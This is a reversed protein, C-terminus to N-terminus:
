KKGKSGGGPASGAGEPPLEPWLPLPKGDPGIYGAERLYYDSFFAAAAHGGDALAQAAAHAAPGGWCVDDCSGAPPGSGDAGGGRAAAGSVPGTHSVPPGGEAGVVGGGTALCHACAPLAWGASAHVAAATVTQTVTHTLARAFSTTLVMDLATAVRQPLTRQLSEILTRALATRLPPVLATALDRPLEASLYDIGLPVLRERLAAALAASLKASVGTALPTTMSHSLKDFLKKSAAGLKAYRKTSEVYQKRRPHAGKKGKARKRRALEAAAVGHGAAAAEADAEADSTFRAFSSGRAAASAGSNERDRGVSSADARRHVHAGVATEAFATESAAPTGDVLSDATGAAGHQLSPPLLGHGGVSGDIVIAANSWHAVRQQGLPALMAALAAEARAADVEGLSSTAAADAAAATSMVTAAAAQVELLALPVADGAARSSADSSAIPAAVAHAPWSDTQLLLAEGGALSDAEEGDGPLAQVQARARAVAEAIELEEDAADADVRFAYPVRRRVGSAAVDLAATARSLLYAAHFVGVRGAPLLHPTAASHAAQTSAELLIARRAEAHHAERAPLLSTDGLLSALTARGSDAAAIAQEAAALTRHLAKSLPAAHKRAALASASGDDAVPAGATSAVSGAAAAASASASSSLAGHANRHAAIHTQLELLSLTEIPVGGFSLAPPQAAPHVQQQPADGRGTSHPGDTAHDAAAATAAAASEREDDAVHGGAARELAHAASVIAAHAAVSRGFAVARAAQAAAARHAAVAADRGIRLVRAAASSVRAMREKELPPLASNQAAVQMAAASAAAQLAAAKATAAAKGDAVATEVAQLAASAAAAARRGLLVAAHAMDARSLVGAAARGGSKGQGQGGVIAGEASAFLGSARSVVERDALQLLSQMESPDVPLMGTAAVAQEEAHAQALALADEKSAALDQKLSSLSEKQAKAQAAVEQAEAAAAEAQEKAAEAAAKMGEALAKAEAAKEKAMTVADKAKWLLVTPRHEDGAGTLYGELRASDGAALYNGLPQILNQVNPGVVGSVIPTIFMSPGLGIGAAAQSFLSDSSGASAQVELAALVASSVDDSTEEVSALLTAEIVLVFLIISWLIHRIIM